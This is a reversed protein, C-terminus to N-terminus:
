HMYPADGGYPMTPTAFFFGNDFPQGQSQASLAPDTFKRTNISDAYSYKYGGVRRKKGYIVGTLPKSAKSKAVAEIPQMPAVAAFAVAFIIFFKLKMPSGERTRIVIEAM